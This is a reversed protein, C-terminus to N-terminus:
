GEDDLVEAIGPLAFDLLGYGARVILGADLLRQRYVGVQSQSWEHDARVDALRTPTGQRAMATLFSRQDPSVTGVMQATVARNFGAASAGAAANVAGVAIPSGEAVEWSHYGVLQMMFPEGSSLEVARRLAHASFEGSATAATAVLGREIDHDEIRSLAPQWARSLFTPERRREPRPLGAMVFVLPRGNRHLHQAANGIENLATDAAQHVEDVTVLVGNAEGQVVLDLVDRVSTVSTPTPAQDELGVGAGLLSVNAVRRRRRPPDIEALRALCRDIIRAPLRTGSGADEQLVWWGADSAMDQMQDLLVTKGAGRHARLHAAWHIDRPDFDVFIPRVADLVDDRGVIVAPLTGFSPTFPNDQM